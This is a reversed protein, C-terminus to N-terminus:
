GSQFKGVAPNQGMRHRLADSPAPLLEGGWIIQNQSVRMLERFYEPPPIKTDWSCDSTNLMRGKLKGCGHNLRGEKRGEMLRVSTGYRNGKDKSAGSGNSFRDAQIGYPPDVIALEFFGDPFEKMGDMCDINYFGPELM